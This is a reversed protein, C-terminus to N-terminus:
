RRLLPTGGHSLFAIRYNQKRTKSEGRQGKPQHPKKANGAVRGEGVLPLLVRGTM